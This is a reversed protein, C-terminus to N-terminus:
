EALRYRIERREGRDLVSLVVEDGRDHGLRFWTMFARGTVDPSAGDVAVIVHHPRLGAQWALSREAHKGFWPKVSMSGQGAKPGPLPWGISPPAGINGQSVSMRWDLVTRRWERELVLDGSHVTDGRTWWIEITGEPKAERHLVGRFDAQGFLRRGGAAGLVDGVEIGARAAASGPVVATVRLGHDRDLSLGVNEPLPWIELDREPVFTGDDIAPQRLIEGVQHCHICSASVEEQPARRRWSAFGPLSAPTRAVTTAPTPGDIGWTPRAPDHHHELVRRLTAVLAAESIRTSEGIDDRGGFIGYTERDPSMFYGWWSLDFDQFGDAPFISLDLAQADTLRVCVFRSLLPTLAEGGDLVDRDFDACQECPLCRLTVFVPRDLDHALAFAEDLDARWVVPEKVTPIEVHHPALIETWVPSLLMLLM